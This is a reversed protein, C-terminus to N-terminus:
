YASRAESASDHGAAVICVRSDCHSVTYAALRSLNARQDSFCENRVTTACVYVPEQRDCDEHHDGVVRKGRSEAAPEDADVDEEHEGSEQDAAVDEVPERLAREREEFEVATAAPADDWREGDHQDRHRRQGEEDGRADEEV